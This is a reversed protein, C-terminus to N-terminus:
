ESLTSEAPNRTQIVFYELSVPLVYREFSLYDEASIARLADQELAPAQNFADINAM